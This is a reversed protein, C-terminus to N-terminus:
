RDLSASAAEPRSQFSMWRSEAAPSRYSSHASNKEPKQTEKREGKRGKERKREREKRRKKRKVIAKFQLHRRQRQALPRLQWRLIDLAVLQLQAAATCHMKPVPACPQCSDRAATAAGQRLTKLKQPELQRTAKRLNDRIVQSEVRKVDPLM